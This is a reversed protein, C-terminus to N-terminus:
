PSAPCAMSQVHLTLLPVLPLPSAVARTARPPSVSRVAPPASSAAGDTVPPGVAAGPTPVEMAVVVPAPTAATSVGGAPPADGGAAAVAGGASAGAGAGDATAAAVAAVAAAPQPRAGPRLQNRIAAFGAHVTAAGTARTLTVTRVRPVVARGGDGGGGGGSRGRAIRLCYFAALGTLLLQSYTDDLGVVLAPEADGREGASAAGDVVAVSVVSGTAEDGLVPGLAAVADAGGAGDLATALRGDIFLLLLRELGVLLTVVGGGDRAPRAAARRAETLLTPRLQRDVRMWADALLAAGSKLADGGHRPRAPTRAGNERGDVEGRRFARLLERDGLLPALFSRHELKLTMHELTRALDDETIGGWLSAPVILLDNLFRRVARRGAPTKTRSPARPLAGDDAPTRGRSNSLPRPPGARIRAPSALRPAEVPPPLPPPPPADQQSPAGAAGGAAGGPAELTLLVDAAAM